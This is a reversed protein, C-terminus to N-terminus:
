PCAGWNALLNLFDSIGVGHGDLDCPGPAGWGALLALFDVIGVEGNGDGCDFPCPTGACAPENGDYVDDGDNDLGIVDGVSWNEQYQPGQNCPDAVNTDATGYYPPSVNEPLPTPDDFHCMGCLTVGHAAHHARLGAGSNGIAGGYDRGHCGICGLGPNNSTGNSSYTYPNHDDGTTHCLDCDTNMYSAGRHMEHKSNQPFVTGKPSTGDTFAGHCTQCGDNYRPMGFAAPGAFVVLAALAAAGAHIPRTRM